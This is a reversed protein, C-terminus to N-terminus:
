AFICFFSVASCTLHSSFFNFEHQTVSKLIRMQVTLCAVYCCYFCRLMKNVFIIMNHAHTNIIQKQKNSKKKNGNGSKRSIEYIRNEEVTEAATIHLHKQLHNKANNKDTVCTNRFYLRQSGTSMTWVICKCVCM